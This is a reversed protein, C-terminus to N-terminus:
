RTSAWFSTFGTRSTRRCFGFLSRENQGFRRFLYPLILATLPHLPYTRRLLDRFEAASLSQPILRLRRCWVMQEEVVGDLWGEARADERQEIAQALLRLTEEPSDGFPIDVFRGQVKQWETRQTASLRHAYEEFAQHLITVLLVPNERSRAAQEAMEQLVQTDGQEPHLAAYELFKGMEDVVVLLGRCGPLHQRVLASADEYFLATDRATGEAEWPAEWGADLGDFV